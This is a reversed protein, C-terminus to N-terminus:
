LGKLAGLFIKATLLEKLNDISDDIGKPKSCYITQLSVQMKALNALIWM